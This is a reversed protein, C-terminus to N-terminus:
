EIDNYKEKLYNHYKLLAEYEDTFENEIYSKFITFFENNANLDMTKLKYITQKPQEDSHKDPDM